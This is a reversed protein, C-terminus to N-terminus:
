PVKEWRFSGREKFPDDEEAHDKQRFLSVFIFSGFAFVVTDTSTSKVLSRYWTSKCIPICAGLYIIIANLFFKYYIHLSDLLGKREKQFDEDSDKQRADRSTESRAFQALKSALSKPQSSSSVKEEASKSKSEKTKDESKSSLSTRAKKASPTRNRRPSKKNLAAYKISFALFFQKAILM